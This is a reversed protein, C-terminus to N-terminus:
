TTVVDCALKTNTVKKSREVSFCRFMALFYMRGPVPAIIYECLEYDITVVESPRHDFAM